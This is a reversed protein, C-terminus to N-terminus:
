KVTMVWGARALYDEVAPYRSTYPATMAADSWDYNWYCGPAGYHDAVVVRQAECEARLRALTVDFAVLIALASIAAAAVVAVVDRRIVGTLTRGRM